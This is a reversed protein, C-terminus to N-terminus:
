KPLFFFLIVGILILGGIIGLAIYLAHNSSKSPPPTPPGPTPPPPPSPSASDCIAKFQKCNSNDTKFQDSWEVCYGSKDWTLCNEGSDYCLLDSSKFDKTACGDWNKDVCVNKGKTDTDKKCKPDLDCSDIDVTSCYDNNVANCYLYYKDACIQCKSDTSTKDYCKKSSM